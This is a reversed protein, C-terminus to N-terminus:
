TKVGAHETQKFNVNFPFEHFRVAQPKGFMRRPETGNMDSFFYLVLFTEKNFLYDM